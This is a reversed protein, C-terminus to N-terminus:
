VISFKTKFTDTLEALKDNIVKDNAKVVDFDKSAASMLSAFILALIILIFAIGFMVLGIPNILDAGGTLNFM